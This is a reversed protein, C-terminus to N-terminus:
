IGGVLQLTSVSNLTVYVLSWFALTREARRAYGARALLVALTLATALSALKLLLAPLFGASLALEAIPNLEAGQTGDLGILTLALDELSALTLVAGWLVVHHPRHLAPQTM